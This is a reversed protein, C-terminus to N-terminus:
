ERKEYANYIDLFYSRTTFFKQNVTITKGRNSKIINIIGVEDLFFINDYVRSPSLKLQRMVESISEVSHKEDLFKWIRLWVPIM